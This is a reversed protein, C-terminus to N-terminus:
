SNKTMSIEFFLIFSIYNKLFLINNLIYYKIKQLGCNEMYIIVMNELYRYGPKYEFVMSGINSIIIKIYQWLIDCIKVNYMYKSFFINYYGWGLENYHTKM